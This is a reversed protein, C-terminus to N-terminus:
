SFLSCINQWTNEALGTSIDWMESMTGGISKGADVVRDAVWGACDKGYDLISKDDIFDYEIIFEVCEGFGYGVAAGFISGVVPIPILTGAWAGIATSGASIGIKTGADVVADSVIKQTRTGNEINEAVGSATDFFIM